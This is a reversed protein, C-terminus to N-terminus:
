IGIVRRHQQSSKDKCSVLSRYQAMMVIELCSSRNQKLLALAQSGTSFLSRHAFRVSYSELSAQDTHIKLISDFVTM